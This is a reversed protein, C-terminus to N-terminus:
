RRIIGKPPIPGRLRSPSVSQEPPGGSYDLVVRRYHLSRAGFNLLLARHRGAAKLYNIAQALEAPGITDLAKVEVLVDGECIFDVRYNLPLLEGKYSIPIAVESQAPIARRSLEIRLAARYVAELFGCGLETHVAMAAGIIRYTEPDGTLSDLRDSGM